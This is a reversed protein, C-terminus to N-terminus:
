TESSLGLYFTLFSDPAPSPRTTRQHIPLCFCCALKFLQLTCIGAATCFCRSNSWSLHSVNFLNGGGNGVLYDPGWRTSSVFLYRGINTYRVETTAHSKKEKRKRFDPIIDIVSWGPLAFNGSSTSQHQFPCQVSCEFKVGSWLLQTCWPVSRSGRETVSHFTVHGRMQMWNATTRFIQSLRWWLFVFRGLLKPATEWVDSFCLTLDM